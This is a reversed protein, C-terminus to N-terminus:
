RCIVASQPVSTNQGVSVGRNRSQLIACDTPRSPRDGLGESGSQSRSSVGSPSESSKPEQGIERM